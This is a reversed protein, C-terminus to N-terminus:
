FSYSIQHHNYTQSQIDQTLWLFVQFKKFMCHKFDNRFIVKTHTNPYLKNVKITYFQTM